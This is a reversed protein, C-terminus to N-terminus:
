DGVKKIEKGTKEIGKGAAHTADKAGEKTEHAANDVKEGAREAPGKAPPDARHCALASCALTLSTIILATLNKM